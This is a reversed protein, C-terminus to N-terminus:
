RIQRPQRAPWQPLIPKQLPTRYETHIPSLHTLCAVRQVCSSTHYGLPFPYPLCACALHLHGLRPFTPPHLIPFFARALRPMVRHSVSSPPRPLRSPVQSSLYNKYSSLSHHIVTGQQSALRNELRSISGRLQEVEKEKEELEAELACREDSFSSSYSTSFSYFLTIFVCDHIFYCLIYFLTVGVDGEHGRGGDPSDARRSRRERRM